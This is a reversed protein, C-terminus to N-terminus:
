ERERGDGPHDELLANFLEISREHRLSTQLEGGCQPPDASGFKGIIAHVNGHQSIPPVKLVDPLTFQLGGDIAYSELSQAM